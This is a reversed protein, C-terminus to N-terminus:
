DLLGDLFKNLGLTQAHELTKEGAKVLAKINNPGADSMDSSYKRANAPVDIRLYDGPDEKNLTKMIENMQYAVTDVSGDMMIEPISKAWKLLNWTNSKGKGKLEFGGGGTGISLIYMSSASPKDNNRERFNFRRAEAYACM